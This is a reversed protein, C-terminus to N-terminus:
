PRGKLLLQALRLLEGAIEHNGVSPRRTYNGTGVGRQHREPIANLPILHGNSAAKKTAKKKAAHAKKMSISLQKRRAPTWEGTASVGKTGKKPTAKKAKAM